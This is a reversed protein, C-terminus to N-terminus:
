PVPLHVGHCVPPWQPAKLAHEPQGSFSFVKLWLDWPRDNVLTFTELTGPYNVIYANCYVGAPFRVLGFAWDTYRLATPKLQPCYLQVFIDVRKYVFCRLLVVVVVRLICFGSFDFVFKPCFKFTISFCVIRIRISKFFVFFVNYGVRHLCGSYYYCVVTSTTLLTSNKQIYVNEPRVRHKVGCLYSMMYTCVCSRQASCRVDFHLLGKKTQFKPVYM